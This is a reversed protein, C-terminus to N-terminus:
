CAEVSASQFGCFNFLVKMKEKLQIAIFFNVVIFHCKPLVGIDGRELKSCVELYKWFWV